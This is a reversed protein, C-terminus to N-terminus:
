KISPFIGLLLLRLRVVRVAISFTMRSATSPLFVAPRVPGLRLTRRVVRRLFDAASAAPVAQREGGRCPDQNYAPRYNGDQIM